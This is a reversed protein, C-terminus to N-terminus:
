LVCLSLPGYGEAYEYSHLCHVTFLIMDLLFDSLCVYQVYGSQYNVCLKGM